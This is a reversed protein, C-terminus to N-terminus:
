LGTNIILRVKTYPHMYSHTYAVILLTKKMYTLDVCVLVDCWVFCEWMTEWTPGSTFCALSTRARRSLWFSMLTFYLRSGTLIGQQLSQIPICFSNTWSLQIIVTLYRCTTCKIPCHQWSSAPGTHDGLQQSSSRKLTLCPLVLWVAEWCAYLLM